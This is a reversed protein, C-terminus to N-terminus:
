TAISGRIEDIALWRFCAVFFPDTIPRSILKPLDRATLDTQIQSADM